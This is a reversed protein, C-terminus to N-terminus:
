DQRHRRPRDREERRIRGPDANVQSGSLQVVEADALVDDDGKRVEDVVADLLCADDLHERWRADGKGPRAGGGGKLAGCKWEPLWAGPASACGVSSKAFSRGGSRCQ